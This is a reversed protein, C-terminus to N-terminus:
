RKVSIKDYVPVRNAISFGEVKRSLAFFDFLETLYIAPAADHYLRALESLQALRKNADMEENSAVLKATLAKDCFFGNPRLCSYIEMPRAVDNYPGANFSLIFGSTDKEWGGSQYAEMWSGFTITKLTVSVGIKNLDQAVSEFIARDAPSRDVMVELQLPFGDPYGAEALLAKAKAPDYPYPKVDPDHGVV